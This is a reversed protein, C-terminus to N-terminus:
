LWFARACKTELINDPSKTQLSISIAHFNIGYGFNDDQMNETKESYHFCDSLSLVASGHLCGIKLGIM